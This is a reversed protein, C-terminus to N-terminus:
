RLMGYTGIGSLLAGGAAFYSAQQAEDGQMEAMDAQQMLGLARMENEYRLTMVDLEAMLESQYAIDKNSGSESDVGSQVMAARQQGMFMSQKRRLDEEQKVASQRVRGANQRLIDANIEGAQEAANGAMLTGGATIASGLLLLAGLAM